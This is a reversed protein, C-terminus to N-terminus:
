TFLNSATSSFTNSIVKLMKLVSFEISRFLVQRQSDFFIEENQLSVFNNSIRVPVFELANIVFFNTGSFLPTNAIITDDSKM